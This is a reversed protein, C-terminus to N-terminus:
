PSFWILDSIQSTLMMVRPAHSLNNINRHLHWLTWVKRGCIRVHQPGRPSEARFGWIILFPFDKSTDSHWSCRLYARPTSLALYESTKWFAINWEPWMQSSNLLISYDLWNGQSCWGADQRFWLSPKKALVLDLNMSWSKQVWQILFTM